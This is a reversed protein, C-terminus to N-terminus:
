GKFQELFSAAADVDDTILVSADFEKGFLRKLVDVVPYNQTWFDRGFIVMPSMPGSTRYYNIAADQFIEQLTGAKGEMCIIGHRAIALLGDERISNQFYKAIHTAFPTPPEHGYGWTPIALSEGPSNIAVALDFSPKFWTFAEHALREDVSGDVSVISALGPVAPQAKLRAIAQDLDAEDANALAAGLHGAEMAGPGGGTCILTGARTLTRALVAANRYSASGRSMAHDGIIAVVRKGEVFSATAQSIANDHLAQMMGVYPNRPTGRGEVVFHQYVRFDLTRTWSSPDNRDYGSFLDVSTYLRQPIPQYPLSFGPM